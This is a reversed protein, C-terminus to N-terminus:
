FGGGRGARIAFADLAELVGPAGYRRYRQRGSLKGLVRAEVLQGIAGLAAPATVGLQRQVLPSDVVPQSLLMDALRWASAGRRASIAEGWNARVAHLDEVLARGNNIAAFSANALREVIPEPDGGRYATLAEFYRLAGGLLGASVPVTVHRTLEKAWLTGHVLARGTRGNGDTFPHITEFQAHAVAAQVLAPLDDRALFRELDRIAAPVRDPQPPVFIADHPSSNSSGIWNQVTRWKGASEPETRGLLAEHIALIAGGDLHRAHAVATEMAVGNAVVLAASESGSDGLEALGVAEACAIVNEIRSSAAAEARRLAAALQPLDAGVQQDFRAIETAAETALARTAPSLPVDPVDAIEAAIAARYPSAARSASDTGPGSSQWRLREYTVAPWARTISGAVGRRV